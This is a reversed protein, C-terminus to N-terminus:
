HVGGVVLNGTAHGGLGSRTELDGVGREAVVVLLEVGGVLRPELLGLALEVAVVAVEDVPELALRLRLGRDREGISGFRTRPWKAFPM